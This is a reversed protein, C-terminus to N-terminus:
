APWASLIATVALLTVLWYASNLIWITHGRLEWTAAGFQITVIFALWIWFLFEAAERFNMGSTLRSIIYVMLLSALTNFFMPLAMGKEKARKQDAATLGVQKMWVNGFLMPSYWLMGIIMIAITAVIIALYNIEM